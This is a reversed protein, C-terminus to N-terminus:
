AAKLKMFTLADPNIVAGGVRRGVYIRSMNVGLLTVYDPMLTLGQRDVVRYTTALDGFLAFIGAGVNPLDDIIRVPYGLLQAPTGAALSDAWADPAMAIAMKRLTSRTRRNVYFAANAGTYAAPISDVVDVFDDISLTTAATEYEAIDTDRLLGLPQGVGTGNLHALNEKKAAVSAFDSAIIAQIDIHSDAVLDNSFKIWQGMNFTDIKIKDFGMATEPRQENEGVWSVDVTSTQRPWEVSTNGITMTSAFQRFPSADILMRQVTANFETPAVSAGQDGLTLAKQDGAVFARFAKREMAATDDATKATVIGPRNIRTALKDHAAQLDSYNKTVTALDAKLADVTATIDTTDAVDDTITEDMPFHREIDSASKISTIAAGPNAPVPVLSIEMLDVTGVERHGNPLRKVSSFRGGISLALGGAAALARYQRAEPISLELRGEVELGKATWRVSHWTGIPKGHDHGALIPLPAKASAFAAGPIRDGARDAKGDAPWAIGIITGDETLSTAFGKTAREILDSM